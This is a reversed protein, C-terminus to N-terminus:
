PAGQGPQRVEEKESRDRAGGTADDQGRAPDPRGPTGSAKDATAGRKLLEGGSWKLELPKVTGLYPNVRVASRQAGKGSGTRLIVVWTYLGSKGLPVLV